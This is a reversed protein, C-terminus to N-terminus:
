SGVKYDPFKEKLEKYSMKFQEVKKGCGYCYILPHWNIFKCTTCIKFIRIYSDKQHQEYFKEFTPRKELWDIDGGSLKQCRECYDGFDNAFESQITKWFSDVDKRRRKITTLGCISCYM